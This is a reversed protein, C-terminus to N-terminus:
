WTIFSYVRDPKMKKKGRSLEIGPVTNNRISSSNKKEEGLIWPGHLIKTRQKTVQTFEM